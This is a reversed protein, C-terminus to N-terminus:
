SPSTNWRQCYSRQPGTQLWRQEWCPACWGRFFLSATLCAFDTLGVRKSSPYCVLLYAIRATSWSLRCSRLAGTCNPPSLLRCRSPILRCREDDGPEM